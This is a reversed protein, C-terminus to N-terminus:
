GGLKCAANGYQQFCAAETCRQIAADRRNENLDVTEVDTYPVYEVRTGQTCNTTASSGTGVTKCTINGDPVDIAKSKKVVVQRYKPPIEDNYQATCISNARRWEPTACGAVVLGLILVYVARM